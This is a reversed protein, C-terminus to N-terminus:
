WSLNIDNDLVQYRERMRDSMERLMDSHSNYKLVVGNPKVFHIGWIKGNLYIEGGIEPSITVKLQTCMAYVRYVGEKLEIRGILIKVNRKKRHDKGPMAELAEPDHRELNNIKEEAACVLADAINSNTLPLDMIWHAGKTNGRQLLADIAMSYIRTEDINM